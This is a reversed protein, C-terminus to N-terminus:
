CDGETAMVVLMESKGMEELASALTNLDGDDQHEAEWLDLIVGTPSAKTAFYNLYRDMSLKQALLRWDNGRSNPADLSNCIKQRISLPIKFAYPGLQTTPASSNHSLLTDFSKAHQLPFALNKLLPNPPAGTEAQVDGQQGWRWSVEGLTIHLQFIQGEGEVQRVCIKCTLETSAQSYLHPEPCGSSSPSCGAWPLPQFEIMKLTGELGLGKIIRHCPGQLVKLADPTDELCYVKLSYELSTCIAPAFIALQLRKIASRSYSEGVFVYTGLQDLLVHCSKAELQCYCPTNLTEEDLTVVEEWNGQHSQTKLQFIWDSSGVDACHPVTLIVPRCLLLGTPGCTVAPSLVTQTGEAPLLGSEAKNIVLYMEYFKGQPIAGHPVLLSVGTGPITLRGGLHSFTGSASTGHERPLSLLHQSGQQAKSRVNVFQSGSDGPFTG